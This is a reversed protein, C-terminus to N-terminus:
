IGQSSVEIEVAWTRREGKETLMVMRMALRTPCNGDEGSLRRIAQKKPRRVSEPRV